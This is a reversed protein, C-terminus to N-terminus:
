LPRFTHSLRLPASPYNMGVVRLKGPASSADALVDKWFNLSMTPEIDHRQDGLLLVRSAFSVTKDLLELPQSKSVTGPTNTSLRRALKRYRARETFGSALSLHRAGIVVLQPGHALSLLGVLLKRTSASALCPM